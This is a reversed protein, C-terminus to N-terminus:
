SLGLFNRLIRAGAAGSREPHFQCGYFSDRAVIATVDVGHHTKALALDSLPAYYSHVFYVYAGHEIGELLVSKSGTWELRNWGMHPVTLGKKVPLRVVNGPFIGLAATEGEESEEFMVHMGLCIGLCPQVLERVCDVLGSRRMQAMFSAATGVGPLVVHSARRITAEVSSVQPTAGLRELAFFVSSVNACGSDVIVVNVATM